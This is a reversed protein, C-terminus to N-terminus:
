SVVLPRSKTFDFDVRDRPLGERDAGAADLDGQKM